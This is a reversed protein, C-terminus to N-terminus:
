DSESLGSQLAASYLDTGYKADFAKTYTLFDQRMQTRAESDMSGYYRSGRQRPLVSDLGSHLAEHLPRPLASLKQKMPGGLYMPWPHHRQTEDWKTGSALKLKPAGKQTSSADVVHNCIGVECEREGLQRTSLVWIVAAVGMVGAAAPAIGLARGTVIELWSPQVVPVPNENFFHGGRDSGNIPDDGAYAYRNTGVSPDTVEWWDPSLFRGLASDYYRAHLYTLGTEPDTREGTFDKPEDPTGTVLVTDMAAGYPKYKSARTVTGATDTVRRISGLHDHYLYGITSATKKVEPDIYVAFAGATDREIDDGLYLTTASGITKKLRAGDPGYAFTTTGTPTTVSIPRNEGDYAITRNVVASQARTLQNGNADYTFAWTGASSVAHPRTSTAGQAPYAYTGVGTATLLNGGNDYTFSQNLSSTYSNTASLLRNLGDYTYSWDEAALNGNVATIRGAADHTSIFNGITTTGDVISISNL